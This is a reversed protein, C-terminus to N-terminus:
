FDKPFIGIAPTPCSIVMVRGHRMAINQEAALADRARWARRRSGWLLLFRARILTEARAGRDVGDDRADNGHQGAREERAVGGHAERTSRTACIRTPEQVDRAMGRHDTERAGVGDM